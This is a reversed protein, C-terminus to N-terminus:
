IQYYTDIIEELFVKNFQEIQYLYEMCNDAHIAHMLKNNFSTFIDITSNFSNILIM